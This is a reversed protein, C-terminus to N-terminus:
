GRPHSPVVPAITQPRDAVIPPGTEVLNLSRGPQVVGSPSGPGQEGAQVKGRDEAMAVPLRLIQPPAAPPRVHHMVPVAHDSLGLRRDGPSGAGHPGSGARRAFGGADLLARGKEVGVLVHGGASPISPSM